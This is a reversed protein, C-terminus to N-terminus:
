KRAVVPVHGPAHHGGIGVAVGCAMLAGALLAGAMVRTKLKSKSESM